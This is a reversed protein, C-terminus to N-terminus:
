EGEAQKNLYEIHRALRYTDKRMGLIVIPNGQSYDVTITDEMFLRMLRHFKNVLRFRLIGDKESSLEYGSTLFIGVIAAKEESFPKVLWVEKRYFAILPYTFGFLVIFIIM